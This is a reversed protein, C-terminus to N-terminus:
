THTEDQNVTSKMAGPTPTPRDRLELSEAVFCDGDVYGPMAFAHVFFGCQYPAEVRHKGRELRTVHKDSVRAASQLDRPRSIGCGFEHAM